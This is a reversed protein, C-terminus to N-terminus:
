ENNMSDEYRWVFGGATRQVGNCCDRISKSNVGTANIAEALSDYRAILNMNFDYQLVVRKGGKSTTSRSPDAKPILNREEEIKAVREAKLREAEEKASIKAAKKEAKLKEEQQKRYVPKILKTRRADIRNIDYDRLKYNSPNALVDDCVGIANEYDKEKEFSIVFEEIVVGPCYGYQLAKYYNQFAEQRNGQKRLNVGGEFIHLGKFFDYNSDGEEPVDVELIHYTPNIVIDKRTPAYEIDIVFPESFSNHLELVKSYYNDAEKPNLFISHMGTMFKGDDSAYGCDIHEQIRKQGNLYAEVFYDSLFTLDLPDRFYLRSLGKGGESMTTPEKPLSSQSILEDKLITYTGKANKYRGIFQQFVSASVYKDWKDFSLNKIEGIKEELIKYITACFMLEDESFTRAPAVKDYRTTAKSEPIGQEILKIFIEGCATADSEARHSQNNIVSFYNELTKQKYDPLGKICKRSLELTDIYVLKGNLGNREFTEKLFSVDFNANHAILVLEGTIIKPFNLIINNIVSQESPASNLMEPTINNVKSAQPSIPVESCILSSYKKLITKEEFLVAAFEVIRDLTPSLGTTELDIALFSHSTKELIDNLEVKLVDVSGRSTKTEVTEETKKRFLKDFIGM